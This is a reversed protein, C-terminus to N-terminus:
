RSYIFEGHLHQRAGPGFAPSFFSFAAARGGWPEARWLTLSIGTRFGFIPCLISKTLNSTRNLILRGTPFITDVKASHAAHQQNKKMGNEYEILLKDLHVVQREPLTFSALM